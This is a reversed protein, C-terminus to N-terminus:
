DRHEEREKEKKGERRKRTTLKKGQKPKGFRPTKTAQRRHCTMQMDESRREGM